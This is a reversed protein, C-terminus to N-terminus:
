RKVFHAEPRSFEVVCAYGTLGTEDSRKMQTVKQRVRTEIANDDGALIGSIELRKLGQYSLTSAPNPPTTDRPGIWYDFGSGKRSVQVAVDGTLVTALKLAVGCAGDRTADQLVNNTARIQDTCNPWRLEIM